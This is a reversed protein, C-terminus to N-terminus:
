EALTGQDFVYLLPDVDTFDIGYIQSGNTVFAINGGSNVITGSGDPNITVMGSSTQNPSNAKLVVSIDVLYSYSGSSAITFTGVLSGNSGDVDEATGWVYTGDISSLMYNPAATTGQSVLVGASAAEAPEEGAVLFATISEATDGGATLYGVLPYTLSDSAASFRGTTDVTYTLNPYQVTNTSGVDNVYLTATPVANSSTANLTGVEVYNGGNDDDFGSAAALYYGNLPAAAFSAKTQLARGSLLPVESVSDTTILVFDKANIMYLAFDYTLTGNEGDPISYTGTTRGSTSFNGNLQGSGGSLEGSPSGGLSLDAVGSSLSGNTTDVGFTGAIVIRYDTNSETQIGWGEIGFAYNSELASLAFSTPDQLHIFGASISGGAAANDFEMIRGLHYVGSGDLGGLAFSLTLSALTTDQESHAKLLKSKRVAAPRFHVTNTKPAAPKADGILGSFALYLCGRGDAGFSYSSATLNVALPQGVSLDEGNYDASGATIGGNGNPTFSGGIAIGAAGESNTNNGQVLFAYPTSSTLAKENGRPAPAPACAAATAASIVVSATYTATKSNADTVTATVSFSGAATPTGSTTVTATSTGAATVGTPLGTVTWTYPSTGGSVTLSGTYAMGVTGTAPLTGSISLSGAASITITVSYTASHGKSDTVTAAVNYSGATTPTGSVTLSGPVATPPFIEVVGPPLGSPTGWTLTGKGGSATITAPGYAVGVTGTAPFSGSIKIKPYGNCGCGLIQLCVFMLSAFLVLSNRRPM